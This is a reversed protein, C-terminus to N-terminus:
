DTKMRDLGAEADAYFGLGETAHGYGVEELARRKFSHVLAIHAYGTVERPFQVWGRATEMARPMLQERPLVEGVV